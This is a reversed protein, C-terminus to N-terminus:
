LPSFLSTLNYGSCASTKEEDLETWAAETRLGMGIGNM